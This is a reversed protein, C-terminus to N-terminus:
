YKLLKSSLFNIVNIPFNIILEIKNERNIYKYSFTLIIVKLELLLLIGKMFGGNEM